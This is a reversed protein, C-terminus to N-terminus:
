RSKSTVGSQITVSFFNFKSKASYKLSPVPPPPSKAYFFWILINFLMNTPQTGLVKKLALVGLIANAIGVYFTLKLLNM